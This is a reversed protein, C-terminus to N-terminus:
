ARMDWDSARSPCASAGAFAREGRTSSTSLSSHAEGRGLIAQGDRGRQDRRWRSTRIWRGGRLGYLRLERRRPFFPCSADFRRQKILNILRAQVDRDLGRGEEAQELSERALLGQRM